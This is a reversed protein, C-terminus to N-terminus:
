TFVMYSIFIIFGAIILWIGEKKFVENMKSPTMTSQLIFPLVRSFPMNEKRYFIVALLFCVISAIPYISDSM